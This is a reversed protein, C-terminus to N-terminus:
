SGCWHPAAGFSAVIYWVLLVVGVIVTAVYSTIRAARSFRKARRFLFFSFTGYVLAIIFFQINVQRQATANEAIQAADCYFGAFYTLM